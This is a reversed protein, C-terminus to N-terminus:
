KTYQLCHEKQYLLDTFNSKDKTPQEVLWLETLYVGDTKQGHELTVEGGFGNKMFKRSMEEITKEEINKTM